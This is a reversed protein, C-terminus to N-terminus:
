PPMRLMRHQIHQFTSECGMCLDYDRCKLCKYRYGRISGRCSACTVGHHLDDALIVSRRLVIASPKSFRIM